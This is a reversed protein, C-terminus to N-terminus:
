FPLQELWIRVKAESDCTASHGSRPDYCRYYIGGASNRKKWIGPEHGRLIQHMLYACFCRLWSFHKQESTADHVITGTNMIRTTIQHTPEFELFYM